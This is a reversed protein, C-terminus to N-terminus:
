EASEGGMLEILTAEDLEEEGYVSGAVDHGALEATPSVRLGVFTRLIWFLIGGMALSWAGVLVIGKVQIVLQDLWSVEGLDGFFAVCLTGWIGCVLHVPVAGVPDDLRLRLMIEASINALVGAGAGILLCELSSVIHANATVAVLGGLVGSLFKFTIGEKNHLIYAHLLAGLGGAGAAINTHLIVQGVTHDFTLVSGGNFGWWGFWLLLVGLATWTLGHSEMEYVEGNPGFRGLRPGLVIVAILAVWGGVSHVVTAGAFDIFGDASLFTDQELYSDGWAWHGVIPYIIISVVVSCIIYPFFSTREAIAGSIITAATAAFVVQFLFHVEIGLALGASTTNGATGELLAFGTGFWGGNSSGFMLSWGILYFGVACTVWDVINKLATIVAAQPRVCGIELCLFGTQMLMVMAAAILVWLRDREAEGQKILALLSDIDAATAPADAAWASHNALALFALVAAGSVLALRILTKKAM